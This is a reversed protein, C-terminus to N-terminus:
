EHCCLVLRVSVGSPMPVPGPATEEQSDNELTTTSTIHSSMALNEMAVNSGVEEVNSGVEEVNHQHGSHETM